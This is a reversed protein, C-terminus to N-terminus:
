CDTLYLCVDPPTRYFLEEWSKAIQAFKQWFTWRYGIRSINFFSKDFYNWAFFFGGRLTINKKFDVTFYRHRTSKHIFNCTYTDLRVYKYSYMSIVSRGWFLGRMGVQVMHLLLLVARVLNTLFLKTPVRLYCKVYCSTNQKRSM